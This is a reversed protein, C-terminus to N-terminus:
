KVSKRFIKQGDKIYVNTPHQWMRRGQLDYIRSSHSPLSVKGIITPYQNENVHIVYKGSEPAPLGYFITVDKIQISNGNDVHPTMEWRYLAYIDDGDRYYCTYDRHEWGLKVDEFTLQGNEYTCKSYEEGTPESDIEELWGSDHGFIPDASIERALYVGYDYEMWLTQSLRVNELSNIMLRNAFSGFDELWKDSLKGDITKVSLLRKSVSEGKGCYSVNVLTDKTAEVVWEMGNFTKFHDGESLSFDFALTEKQTEFDYIFIQKDAHRYGFQLKIPNYDEHRFKYSDDYIRYYEIQNEATEAMGRYELITPTVNGDEIVSVAWFQQAYLEIPNASLLVAFALSTTFIKKM